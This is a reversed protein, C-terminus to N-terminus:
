SGVSRRQHLAQRAPWSGPVVKIYAMFAKKDYSPQEQAGGRRQLTQQLDESLWCAAHFSGAIPVLAARWPLLGGSLLPPGCSRVTLRFSEIIDVVKRDTDEMKEEAEEASANAGTDVHVGGLTQWQASLRSNCRSCHPLLATPSCLLPEVAKMLNPQRLQVVASALRAVLRCRPASVPLSDAGGQRAPAWATTLVGAPSGDAHAPHAALLPLGPRGCRAMSKLSSATRLRVCRIATRSCRTAQVMAQILGALGHVGLPSTHIPLIRV